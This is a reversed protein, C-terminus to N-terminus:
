GSDFACLVRQLSPEIFSAVPAVTQTLHPWLHVPESELRVGEVGQHISELGFRRALGLYDGLLPPAAADLPGAACALQRTDGRLDIM